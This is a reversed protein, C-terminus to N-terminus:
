PAKSVAPLFSRQVPRYPPPNEVMDVMQFFASLV